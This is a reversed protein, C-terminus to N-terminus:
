FQQIVHRIIVHRIIVNALAAPLGFGAQWAITLL